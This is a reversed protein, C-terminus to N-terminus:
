RLVILISVAIAYVGVIEPAFCYSISNRPNLHSTTPHHALMRPHWGVAAGARGLLASGALGPAQLRGFQEGLAAGLGLDGALQADGTLGDAAPM